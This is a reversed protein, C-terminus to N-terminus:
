QEDLFKNVNLSLARFTDMVEETRRAKDAADKEQTEKDVVDEEPLLPGHTELLEKKIEELKKDTLKIFRIPGMGDDDDGWSSGGAGGSAAAGGDGYLNADALSMRACQAALRAFIVPENRLLHAAERNPCAEEALTDLVGRGFVDRVFALVNHMHDKRPRWQPFRTTMVLRRDATVLPHYVDTLFHVTPAGAPYTDPIHVRFRFVADRYYGHSLFLVGHWVRAPTTTDPTVYLGRPCHGPNALNSSAPLLLATLTLFPYPASCSSNM